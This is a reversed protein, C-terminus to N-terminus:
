PLHLLSAQGLKPRGSGDESCGQLGGTEYLGRTSRYRPSKWGRPCTRVFANPNGTSSTEDLTILSTSLFPTIPKM